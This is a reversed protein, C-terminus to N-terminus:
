PPPTVTWGRRALEDALADTSVHGLRRTSPAAPAPEDASASESEAEADTLHDILASAETRSFKGRSQRATLDLPHRAEAFGTFGAQRVLSELYAIQKATAPPGTGSGFSM